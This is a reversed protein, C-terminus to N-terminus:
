PCGWWWRYFWMGAVFFTGAWCLNVLSHMLHGAFRPHRVRRRWADPDGPDYLTWLPKTPDRRTIPPDDTM